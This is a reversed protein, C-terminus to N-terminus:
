LASAAEGVPPWCRRAADIHMAARSSAFIQGPDLGGGHRELHRQIATSCAVLLELAARQAAADVAGAAVIMPDAPALGYADTLAVDALDLHLGPLLYASSGPACTVSRAAITRAVALAQLLPEAPSDAATSLQQGLRAARGVPDDSPLIRTYTM